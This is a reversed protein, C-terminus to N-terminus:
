LPNRVKCFYSFLPYAGGHQPNKKGEFIFRMEAQPLPIRQYKQLQKLNHAGHFFSATQNQFRSLLFGKEAAVRPHKGTRHLPHFARQSLAIQGIHVRLVPGIQGGPMPLGSANRQFHQTETVGADIRIKPPLAHPLGDGVTLRQAQPVIRGGINEAQNVALAVPKGTQDGIVVLPHHHQLGMGFAHVAGIRFQQRKQPLQQPILQPRHVVFAARGEWGAIGFIAIHKSFRLLRQFDHLEAVTETDTERIRLFGAKEDILPLVAAQQLGQGGSLAHQVGEAIRAAERETGQTSAGGIHFRHINGLLGNQLAVFVHGQIKGMRRM